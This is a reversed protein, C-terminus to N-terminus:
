PRRAVYLCESCIQSNPFHPLIERCIKAGKKDRGWNLLNDLLNSFAEFPVFPNLTRSRGSGIILSSEVGISVGTGLADYYDSMNIMPRHCSPCSLDPNDSSMGFM